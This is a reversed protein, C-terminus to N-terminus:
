PQGADASDLPANIHALLRELAMGRSGKILLTADASLDAAIQSAIAASWEPHVSILAAAPRSQPSECCATFQQGILVCRDCVEAARAAIERHASPAADGLELMDGLVAWRPAPYEALLDLAARMSAPNANYADNIITPRTPDDAAILEGRMPAPKAGRWACAIDRESVGCRALRVRPRHM